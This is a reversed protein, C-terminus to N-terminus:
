PKLQKNLMAWKSAVKSTATVNPNPAPAATPIPAPPVGVIAQTTAAQAQLELLREATKAEHMNKTSPAGGGTAAKTLQTAQKIVAQTNANATVRLQVDENKADRDSQRKAKLYATLEPWSLGTAWSDGSTLDCLDVVQNDGLLYIRNVSGPDFSCQVSRVSNHRVTAFWEERMARACTYHVGHFYLGKPQITGKDMPLLALRVWAPDHTILAARPLGWAWLDNPRPEVHDAIMEATRLYGALYSANYALISQVLVKKFEPLTFVSDKRYDREGREEGDYRIAGPLWNITMQNFTHFAREVLGKLDPRYAPANVVRVGLKSPIQDAVVSLLEGRDAYLNLPLDRAPWQDATITIGLEACFAVKDSYANWVAMAASNYRADDCTVHVGTILQSFVDVVYYVTPRGVVQSRDLSSVIHLDATTADIMAYEGVALASKSQDGLVARHNRAVYAAGKRSTLSSLKTHHLKYHRQFQAFSPRQEAPKLIPTLQGDKEVFGSNYHDGLMRDYTLSLPLKEDKRYYRDIADEFHVRVVDTVNIGVQGKGTVPRGLKVAGPQHPKGAGGCKNLTPQLAERMQGRQWYRRLHKYLTSVNVKHRAAAAKVLPGSEGPWLIRQDPAEVLERIMAWAEDRLERQTPTLAEERRLQALLHDTELVQLDGAAMAQVLDDLPREEPWGVKPSDVSILFCSGGSAGSDRHALLRYLRRQGAVMWQLLANRRLASMAASMASTLNTATDSM